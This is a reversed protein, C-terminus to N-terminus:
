VILRTIPIKVREFYRIQLLYQCLRFILHPIETEISFFITTKSQRESKKNLVSYSFQFNNRHRFFSKKKKKLHKCWSFCLVKSEVNNM